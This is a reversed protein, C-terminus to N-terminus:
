KPLTFYFISGKDIESKVWIYGGHREVIKKTIALGIGTGPYDRKKHLRKFVEFIRDSHKSDIGIGNDQVAFLWHDEEEKTTINIKPQDESRFKIANSILNQFVQAIQTNDAMVVPLHDHVIDAKTEKISVELNSIVGNYVSELDTPKLEKARTTIRSFDLIDDILNQMRTAGDVSFNIYKDAKDDLKGKYKRELLQLYSAIMRLPEQLDHSSIYAFQELEKNSRSLEELNQKLIKEAEKRETIDRAAAFVGIIEGSEDKYVSANYLVPTIDGTKHKIELPYDRVIGKSFVEKYGMNAKSPETFYDSFDTGIIEDRTFGTITETSRNADTIKGNPGITVLPDISAEILSRNYIGALKLKRETKTRETIDRAAAFVGIIEGSEDKYVSANYLVPTVDGSIHKLELPYNRVMGNKFVIKYGERAKEPETFYDSFDTGILEERKLGTISETSKNVDTVIGSPNITVLPDVSSEILSRNYINMTKLTDENEKFKTIDNFLIAVERSDSGGLKFAYVSFWKNLAEAHNIFRIPEGTLAIKGYIEFWYEEHDPALERMLKGRADVLGTQKEFALNIELFRYDIPNNKEDFIVDVTCFGEDISNFLTLYREKGEKLSKNAKELESSQAKLKENSIRLQHTLKQENILLEQIVNEDNNNKDYDM